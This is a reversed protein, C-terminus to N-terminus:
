PMSRVAFEILLSLLALISTLLTTVKVLQLRGAPLKGTQKGFRHCVFGGAISGLWIILGPVTTLQEWSFIWYYLIILHIVILLNATTTSLRSNM